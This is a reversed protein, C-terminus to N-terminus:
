WSWSAAASRLRPSTSTTTPPIRRRVGVFGSGNALFEVVGEVVAGRGVGRRRKEAGGREAGGPRPPARGCQARRATEGTPTPPTAATPAAGVAGPETRERTTTRPEDTDDKAGKDDKGGKTAESAKRTRTTASTRRTARSSAAEARGRQPPPEGSRRALIADILDAKRLRRYGDIALESAIAHLDALPSAELAARDLVSM